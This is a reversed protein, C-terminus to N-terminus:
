TLQFLKSLPYLYHDPHGEAIKQAEKILALGQNFKSVAEPLATKKAELENIRTENYLYHNHEIVSQIQLSTEHDRAILMNISKQYDIENGWIPLRYTGYDRHYRVTYDPLLKKVAKEIRQFQNLPKGQFSKLAEIVTKAIRITTKVRDIHADIEKFVKEESLFEKGM